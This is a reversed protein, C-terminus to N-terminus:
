LRRVNKEPQSLFESALWPLNGADNSLEFQIRFLDTNTTSISAVHYKCVASQLM